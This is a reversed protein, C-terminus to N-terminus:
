GRSDQQHVVSPQIIDDSSNSSYPVIDDKDLEDSDNKKISLAIQVPTQPRADKSSIGCEQLRKVDEMSQNNYALQVDQPDIKIISAIIKKLELVTTTEIVDTFITLKARRIMLYVDQSSQPPQQM